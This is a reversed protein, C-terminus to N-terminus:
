IALSLLEGVTIPLPSSLLLSQVTVICWSAPPLSAPSCLPRDAEGVRGAVECPQKPTVRGCVHLFWPECFPLCEGWTEDRLPLVTASTHRGPEKPLPPAIQAGRSTAPLSPFHTPTHTPTCLFGLCPDSPHKGPSKPAPCGRLTGPVGFTLVGGLALVWPGAGSTAGSRSVSSGPM